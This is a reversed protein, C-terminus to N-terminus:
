FGVLAFKRIPMSQAGRPRHYYRFRTQKCNSCYGAGHTIGWAFTQRLPEGCAPCDECWAWEGYAEIDEQTLREYAGPTKLQHTVEAHQEAHMLQQNAREKDLLGVQVADGFAERAAQNFEDRNM